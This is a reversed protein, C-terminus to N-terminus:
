EPYSILLQTVNFKKRKPPSDAAVSSSIRTKAVPVLEIGGMPKSGSGETLNRCIFYGTPFRCSLQKSSGIVFVYSCNLFLISKAMLLASLSSTSYIKKAVLTSTAFETKRNTPHEKKHAAIVNGLM